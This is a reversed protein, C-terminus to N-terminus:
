DNLAPPPELAIHCCCVGLILLKGDPDPDYTALPM